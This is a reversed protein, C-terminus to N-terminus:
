MKGTAFILCTATKVVGIGVYNWKNDLQNKDHDEDGAYIWEILHVGNLKYGFSANEGVWTFGLKNFGDEKELFNNFGQHSDLGKNSVFFSARSQAYDTLKQNLTLNQSGHNVRYINLAILIESPTAMVSDEGVKMTWTHQGIQQAVGWPQTDNSNTNKPASTPIIQPSPIKIPKTIDPTSTLTPSIISPTSTPISIIPKPYNLSIFNYGFIPLIFVVMLVIFTIITLTISIIKKFIKM